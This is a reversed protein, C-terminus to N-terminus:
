KRRRLLYAVALLGAIPFIAEFGPVAPTPTPSYIPCTIIRMTRYKEAAGIEVGGRKSSVRLKVEYDGPSSYSHHVKEGYGKSGDGFDWEVTYNEPLSYSFHATECLSKSRNILGSPLWELSANFTIIQNVCYSEVFPEINLSFSYPNVIEERIETIEADRFIRDIRKVIEKVTPTATEQEPFLFSIKLTKNLPICSIKQRHYDRILLESLNVTYESYESLNSFLELLADVEERSIYGEKIVIEKYDPYYHDSYGIVKGDDLIRMWREGEFVTSNVLIIPKQITSNIEPAFPPPPPISKLASLIKVVEKSELNVYINIFRLLEPDSNVTISVAPYALFPCKGEYCTKWPPGSLVRQVGVDKIEYHKGGIMDLVEPNTLAIRLVEDKQEDTLSALKLDFDFGYVKEQIVDVSVELTIGLVWPLEQEKTLIYVLCPRIGEYGTSQPPRPPLPVPVVEYVEYGNDLWEQVELDSIALEIAKLKEEETLPQVDSYPPIPIPPQPEIQASESTENPSFVTYGITGLIAVGLILGTVTLWVKKM